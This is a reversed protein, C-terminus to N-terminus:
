GDRRKGAPHLALRPSRLTTMRWWCATVGCHTGCAFPGERQAPAHRRGRQLAQWHFLWQSRVVGQM